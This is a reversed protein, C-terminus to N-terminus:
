AHCLLPRLREYGASDTRVIEPTGEDVTNKACHKGKGSCIQSWLQGGRVVPNSPNRTWLGGAAPNSGSTHYHCLSWSDSRAKCQSLYHWVGAHYYGAGDVLACEDPAGEVPSAIVHAASWSQGQDTSSRVVIRAWDVTCYAPKPAFNYERHFLYWTTGSTVFHFGVNMATMGFEEFRAHSLPQFHANGNWFDVITM